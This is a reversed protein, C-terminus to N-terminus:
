AGTIPRQTHSHGSLHQAAGRPYTQPCLCKRQSKAHECQTHAHTGKLTRAHERTCKHNNQQNHAHSLVDKHQLLTRSWQTAAYHTQWKWYSQIAGHSFFFLVSNSCNLLKQFLSYECTWLSFNGSGFLTWLCFIVGRLKIYHTIKKNEPLTELLMIYKCAGTEDGSRCMLNSIVCHSHPKILSSKWSWPHKPTNVTPSCHTVPLGKFSTM